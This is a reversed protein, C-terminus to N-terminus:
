ACRPLFTPQPHKLIPYQPSYKTRLPVLYCPLSSFKTILLKMSQVGWVKNHPHYFWSSHSPRPM